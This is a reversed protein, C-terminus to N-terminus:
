RRMKAAEKEYAKNEQIIIEDMIDLWLNLEVPDMDMFFPIPTHFFRSLRGIALLMEAELRETETLNPNIPM